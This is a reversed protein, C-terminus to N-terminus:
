FESRRHRFDDGEGLRFSVEGLQDVLDDTLVFSEDQGSVPSGRSDQQAGILEFRELFRHLDEAVLSQQLGDAARSPLRRLAFLEGELVVDLQRELDLDGGLPESMEITKGRLDAGGHDLGDEARDGLVPISRAFEESTLEFPQERGAPSIEADDVLDVVRSPRHEDVTRLM